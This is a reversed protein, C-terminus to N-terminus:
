AIQEHAIELKVNESCILETAQCMSLINGNIAQLNWMPTPTLMWPLKLLINSKIDSVGIQLVSNVFRSCNTGNKIFPGYPIYDRKNLELAFQLANSSNIRIASAYITGAGHTSPNNQLENLIDLLNEISGIEHSFRAGTSIKLDHDTIASRVRGHGHPAHYRGFDFYHCKGSKGDVLVIAAHGVKYYGKSNIGVLDMLNDYWAGAQKCLTEPWALAIAFGDHTNKM